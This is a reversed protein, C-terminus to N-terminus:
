KKTGGGYTPLPAKQQALTANTQASLEQFATNMIAGGAHSAFGNAGVIKEIFFARAQPTTFDISQGAIAAEDTLRRSMEYNVDGGFGASAGLDADSLIAAMECLAPNKLTKLETFKGQPDITDWDPTTGAHHAATAQKMVAHPGNPSTTRILTLVTDQDDRSVGCHTMIRKLVAYSANENAYHNDPPNGTGPHDIDHGIAALLMVYKDRLGLPKVTADKDALHDQTRIMSLTLAAVNLTHLGNHYPNEQTAGSPAKGRVMEARASTLAIARELADLPRPLPTSSRGHDRKIVNVAQAAFSPVSPRTKECWHLCAKEFIQSLGKPEPKGSSVLPRTHTNYSANHADDCRRIHNEIIRLNGEGGFLAAAAKRHIPASTDRGTSANTAANIAHAIFDLGTKTRNHM